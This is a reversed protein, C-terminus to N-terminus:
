APPPDQVIPSAHVGESIAQIERMAKEAKREAKRKEKNREALKEDNAILLKSWWKIKSIQDIKTYLSYYDDAKMGYLRKMFSEVGPEKTTPATVVYKSPYLFELFDAIRRHDLM